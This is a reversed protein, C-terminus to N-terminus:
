VIQIFFLKGGTMKMEQKTKKFHLLEPSFVYFIWSYKKKLVVNQIVRAHLSVRSRTINCVAVIM